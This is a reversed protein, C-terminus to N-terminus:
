LSTLAPDIADNASSGKPSSLDTILRWKGPQHKNPIVGFSNLHVGPFSLPNFPGLINGAATEKALYDDIVKPNDRTSKM